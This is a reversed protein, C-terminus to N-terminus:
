NDLKYPIFGIVHKIYNKTRFHYYIVNLYKGKILKGVLQKQIGGYAFYKLNERVVDDEIIQLIDKKIDLKKYSSDIKFINSLCMMIADTFKVEVIKKNEDLYANNNALFKRVAKYMDQQNNYLEENFKSTVSDNNYNIYNYLYKDIITINDCYSLYKLNFLLDEGWSISNDFKINFKEIINVVYLKNWVFNIYFDKFLNGFQKLFMERKIGTKNYLNSNKAEITGSHNKSLRKYGCLVIDINNNTKNRVKNKSENNENVENSAESIIANTLLQIMEQEIYDDSDVFQIFKGTAVQIGINRANSVGSNKVHKVKIRKDQKAYVDCLSGSNDSSGDDILILEINKYTQGLISDICKELYKECNYVPVIVSVLNDHQM